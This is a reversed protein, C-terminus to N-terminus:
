VDLSSRCWLNAGPDLGVTTTERFAEVNAGVRPVWCGIRSAVASADPIDAVLGSILVSRLTERVM